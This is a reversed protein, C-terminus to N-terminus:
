QLQKGIRNWVDSWYIFIAKAEIDKTKVYGWYRSDHSYDRNDGLVFVAGTPVDVPGFNDRPNVDSPFIVNSKYVGWPDELRKGNIFVVKDKIEIREGPLGIVRMVFDKSRDQPYPFVIIDGRRPLRDGYKELKAVFHDGKELAPTMPYSTMKFSRGGAVSTLPRVVFPAAVEFALSVILIACIYFYWRNYWKLPVANLRAAQIAAFTAILIPCVIATALLAILGSFSFILGTLLLLFLLFWSGVFFLIGHLLRGNYVHGLGPLYMSLLFSIIPIRRKTRDM